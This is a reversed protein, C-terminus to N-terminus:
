VAAIAGVQRKGMARMALLSAAYLIVSRLFITLMNEDEATM